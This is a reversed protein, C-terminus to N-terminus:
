HSMAELREIRESLRATHGILKGLAFLSVSIALHLVFLVVGLTSVASTLLNRLLNVIPSNGFTAGILMMNAELAVPASLAVLLIYLGLLLVIVALAYLLWRLITLGNRPRSPAQLQASTTTM